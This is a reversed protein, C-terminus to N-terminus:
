DSTTTEERHASERKAGAGEGLAARRDKRRQATYAGVLGVTGIVLLPAQALFAIRFDSLGYNGDPSIQDLIFGVVIVALVSAGYGGVNVLGTATGLYKPEVSTRAFDFGIMCSSMSIGVAVAILMFQWLPRPTTPLLVSAWIVVYALVAAAVVLIRRHPFRGVLFGLLPGFVITAITSVTLVASVGQVSIGHGASMLPVGWLFLFCGAPFLTIFHTFFGVWEGPERMIVRLGGGGRVTRPLEVGEPADRVVLFVLIAVVIGLGALSAFAPTWGALRLIALLPIAAVVQGLQGLIGTFQTVVPVTPGRFWAPLMRVVSVFIAGDGVGILLRAALALPLSDVVALMGQGVALILSGALIMWRSGVRDLVAGAPIQVICYVALQVVSLVSLTAASIDFREVAELGAVGLSSRGAVAVIYAILGIAWVLLARGQASAKLTM